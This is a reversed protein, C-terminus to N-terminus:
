AGVAFDDDRRQEAAAAADSSHRLADVPGGAWLSDGQLGETPLGMAAAMTAGRGTNHCPLPPRTLVPFRRSLRHSLCHRHPWAALCAGEAAAM